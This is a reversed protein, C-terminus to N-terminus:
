CIFIECFHWIKVDTICSVVPLFCQRRSYAIEISFLIDPVEDPVGVRQRKRLLCLEFNMM